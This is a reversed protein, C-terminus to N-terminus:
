YRYVHARGMRWSKWMTYFPAALCLLMASMLAITFATALM